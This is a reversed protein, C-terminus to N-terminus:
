DTLKECLIENCALGVKEVNLVAEYNGKIKEKEKKFGKV